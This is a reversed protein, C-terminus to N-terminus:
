TSHTEMSQRTNRITKHSCKPCHQSYANSRQFWCNLYSTPCVWHLRVRTSSVSAFVSVFLCGPFVKARVILSKCDMGFQMGDGDFQMKLRDIDSTLIQVTPMGEDKICISAALVFVAQLEVQLDMQYMPIFSQQYMLVIALDLWLMRSKDIAKDHMVECIAEYQKHCIGILRSLLHHTLDLSLDLKGAMRLKSRQQQQQEEEEEEKYDLVFLSAELNSISFATKGHYKVVACICNEYLCMCFM